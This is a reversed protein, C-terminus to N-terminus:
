ECAVGDGDRDLGSRYGPEGRLIPAAGAARAETCNAYYAEDSRDEGPTTTTPAGVAPPGTLSVPPPEVLAVRWGNCPGILLNRVRGFESQDMSLRWRVKISVWDGLYRCLDAGNPPLWNSPDKDGKSRNSSASVARLSRVDTLDNAFARLATAPWLRAGSDWAEKLPVVHDIDIESPDEFWRDDYPSWWNGAVVTCGFPDVQAPQLSDRRLIAARTDCGGGQSAPYGFLERVYGTGDENAIGVFALLDIALVDGSSAITTSTTSTSSTSSTTSGSPDTTAPAARETTTAGTQPATTVDDATSPTSATPSGCAALVALLATAAGRAAGGLRSPSTALM